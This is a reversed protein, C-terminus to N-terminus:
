FTKEMWDRSRTVAARESEPLDSLPKGENRWYLDLDARQLRRKTLELREELLARVATKFADSKIDEAKVKAVTNIAQAIFQDQLWDNGGGLGVVAPITTAEEQTQARVNSGQECTQRPGVPTVAFGQWVTAILLVSGFASFFTGPAARKLLIRAKKEFLMDVDGSSKFVGLSFLRYGFWVIVSGVLLCIIKYILLAFIPDM